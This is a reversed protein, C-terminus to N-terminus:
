ARADRMDRIQDHRAKVGTYQKTLLDNVASGATHRLTDEYRHKIADEGREAEALVSHENGGTVTGRIELWWRHMLGSASGSDEPEENNARVIDKLQNANQKRETACQRFLNAIGPSEIKDAAETFGKSSDINIEILDQIGKISDKNLNSVSEM